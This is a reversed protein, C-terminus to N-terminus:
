KKSIREMDKKMCFQVLTMKDIKNLATFSGSITFVDNVDKEMRILKYKCNVSLDKTLNINPM